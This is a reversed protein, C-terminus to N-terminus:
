GSKLGARAEIGMEATGGDIRYVSLIEHVVGDWTLRWEPVVTSLYRIIFIVSTEPHMQNSALKENGHTPTAKAWVTAQDEWTVVEDGYENRTVAKQGFTILQNLEGTHIM